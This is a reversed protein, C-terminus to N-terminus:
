EARLAQIPHGRLAANTAMWTFVIGSLLLGLLSVFIFVYPVDAGRSTLSPWVAILGAFAGGLLGGALLLIHEYLLMKKISQHRFGLARLLGIENYREFINRMVVVGLGVTGLLLGLSGLALFINLYTSEVRSFALLRERTTMVVVGLDQLSDTLLEKVEEEQGEPVDVLLMRYGTESPYRELLEDEEILINGQFISNGIAGSLAVEFQNGEEDLYPITGGISQGLAWLMSAQDIVGPVPSEDGSTHDLGTWPNKSSVDDTSEVIVFPNMEAFTEEPIGVLQPTQARNLNLCSADDGRRVRLPIFTVGEVDSQTLAFQNLGSETNLDYLLPLTMEAFLEYGGTGSQRQDANAAPDRRNAGVALILFAGCALLAITALSRGRRRATNRVGVQMMTISSTVSGSLRTLLAHNLGLAAVLMLAGVGFFVGAMAMSDGSPAFAVLGFAMSAAVCAVAIGVMRAFPTSQSDITISGEGPSLLSIASQQAHKRLSFFLSILTVILSSIWGTLYTSPEPYFQIDASAVAGSWVSGLAWLVVQTYLTAIVLGLASGVAALGLGELFYFRRIQKPLLGIAELLGAEAQRRELNFVFLLGVLVLAALILFFSLGLFLPGFQMAQASAAIAQERVPLFFLGLQTPKLHDLVRAEIESANYENSPYRIATLWGFRNGWIERGEELSLFVKPAGRYQDWYDEDKDRIRDLDMVFGPDWDRCNESNSLGPFDPMLEPDMHSGSMTLIEHVEISRTEEILNRMPGFVFYRLTLTDGIDLSLDDELWRNIYVEGPQLPEYLLSAPPEASTAPADPNLIEKLSGVASVISYPTAQDEFEISNVLYTLIGVANDSLGAGLEIIRDNLFIQETRLEVWGRDSLDLVSLSADELQWVERMHMEIQVPTLSQPEDSDATAVLLQNAKGSLEVQEQLWEISVFANNPAIQNARLDYRGMQEDTAIATVTVRAANTLNDTTSLPAERSLLSPREVRLLITDGVSAGIVHALQQNLIVEDEGPPSISPDSGLAFFGSEVGLVQVRNARNRTTPHSASGNLTLLATTSRSISESLDESLAQRFFREPANMAYEISGLRMLAISNLTANVSNGVLLAGTLVATGVAVGLVTGLHSKWYYVLSRIALQVLSM